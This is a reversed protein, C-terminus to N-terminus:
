RRKRRDRREREVRWQEIQEASAQRIVLTGNAVQQRIRELRERRQASERGRRTRRQVTDSM